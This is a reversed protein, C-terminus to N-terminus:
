EKGGFKYDAKLTVATPELMGTVRRSGDTMVEAYRFQRTFPAINQGLLTLSFAKTWQYSVSADVRVQMNFLKNHRIDRINDAVDPDNGAGAYLMEQSQLFDKNGEYGWVVRASEFLMWKEGAKQTSFLKTQMDPWNYRDSGVPPYAGGFNSGGSITTGNSHTPDDNHFGLPKVFTQNGGLSWKESPAKYEAELEVGAMYLKGKPVSGRPLTGGGNWGLVKDMHYFTTLTTKVNKFSNDYALEVGKLTEPQTQAAGFKHDGILQLLDNVRQSQQATFKLLGADGGDYIVSARPSHAMEAWRYKDVRDSVMFTWASTMDWSVEGLAAVNDMWYQTGYIQPNTNTYIMSNPRSMFVYGEDMIMKEPSVGWGTGMTIYSYEGGVAAKVRETPQLRLTSKLTTDQEVYNSLVRVTGSGYHSDDTLREFRTSSYSLSSNLSLRDNFTHRNDLNFVAQNVGTQHGYNPSGQLTSEAGFAIFRGQGNTTYRAWFDWDRGFDLQLYSKIQPYGRFDRFYAETQTPLWWAGGPNTFFRDSYIDTNKFGETNTFSGYAYGKMSGTGFTTSLYGGNSRYGSVSKVGMQTGNATDHNKTTISIVGAIAGPGYTVSGPGRIVEVKRIDNLDWNELETIAGTHSRQNVLRGNVLLMFNYNRGEVGRLAMPNTDYSTFWTFDPVFTEMIDMLNRGPSMKIMDETITTVAVPTKKAETQTLTGIVSPIDTFLTEEMGM